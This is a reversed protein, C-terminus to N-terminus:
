VANAYAILHIDLVSHDNVTGILFRADTDAVIHRDTMVGNDVTTDNMVPHEDAHSSDNHVVRLDTRVRYNGGACDDQFAGLYFRAGDVAADRGPLDLIDRGLENGPLYFPDGIM